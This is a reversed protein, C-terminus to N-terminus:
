SAHLDCRSYYLKLSILVCSVREKLYTSVRHVYYRAEEQKIMKLIALCMQQCAYMRHTCPIRKDRLLSLDAKNTMNTM